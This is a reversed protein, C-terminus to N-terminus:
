AVLDKVMSSYQRSRARAEDIGQKSTLDAPVFSTALDIPYQKKLEALRVQTRQQLELKERVLATVKQLNASSARADTYASAHEARLLVIGLIATAVALENRGCFRSALNM